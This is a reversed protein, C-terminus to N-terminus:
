PLRDERFSLPIIKLPQCGDRSCKYFYRWASNVGMSGGRSLGKLFVLFSRMCGQRAVRLVSSWHWWFYFKWLEIGQLIKTHSSLEVDPFGPLARGCPFRQRGFRVLLNRQSIYPVYEWKSLFYKFNRVEWVETELIRGPQGISRFTVDVLKRVTYKSHKTSTPYDAEPKFFNKLTSDLGWRQQSYLICYFLCTHGLLKFVM